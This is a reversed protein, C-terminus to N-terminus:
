YVRFRGALVLTSMLQLLNGFKRSTGTNLQADWVSQVYDARLAVSAATACASLPAELSLIDGLPAGPTGALSYTSAFTDATLAPHFFTLLRDAQGVHWPETGFWVSDLAIALPVPYSNASFSDEGPPVTGDLAARDPALGTNADTVRQWFTRANRALELARADGTKEAWLAFYAPLMASTRTLAVDSAYATARPLQATPDVLGVLDGMATLAGSESRFVAATLRAAAAGYDVDGASGWRGDALWLATTTAFHPDAAVATSCTAGSLDCSLPMYDRLPGTKAIMHADAWRWLEDFEARRNLEVSILLANGFGDSRVDGARPDWVYAQDAGVPVFISESAPDGHFLQEYDDNLKATVDAETKGLLEVFLDRYQRDTALAGGGGEGASGGADAPAGGETVGGAAADGPGTVQHNFGIVDSTANCAALGSGALYAIAICLAIRRESAPRRNTM